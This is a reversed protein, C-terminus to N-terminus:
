SATRGPAGAGLRYRQVVNAERREVAGRPVRAVVAVSRFEEIEFRWYSDNDMRGWGGEGPAPRWELERGGGRSFALMQSFVGGRGRDKWVYRTGFGLVMLIQVGM